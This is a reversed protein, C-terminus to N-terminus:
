ARLAALYSYSKRAADLRPMTFPPEQEVFFDRIGAQYAAPLLTGWTMIGAGIEAPRMEADSDVPVPGLLDKVHMLRFRGPYRKLLAIPDAGAAVVWGADMEFCVFDPDTHTMLIDLGTTDGLPLLELNHNHYGFRFGAAKFQRGRDNLFDAIARWDDACLSRRVRAMYMADSEGAAKSRLREPIPPFPAIVTSVGLAALTKIVVSLDGQLTPDAGPGLLMPAIHISPCTLGAADLAKRMDVPSQGLLGPLEISRYGIRALAHLSGPLDKEADAGLTYLQLGIPLGVRKFFPADSRASAPGAFLAGAGIAVASGLLGRRSIAQFEMM